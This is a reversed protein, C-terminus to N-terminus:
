NTPRPKKPRYYQDLLAKSVFVVNARRLNPRRSEMVQDYIKFVSYGLPELLAKFAEFPVHVSNGPHMGVEVQLLGIRQQVLMLIFGKCVNLDYGETDIKLFDISDVHEAECFRDGADIQVEEVPHKPAAEGAELVRNMTNTGQAQILATTSKEGLALNYCQVKDDGQFAQSLEEFTKKVPEFAFIKSAPSLQRFASTSQGVNAGVDFITALRSNPLYRQFDTIQKM